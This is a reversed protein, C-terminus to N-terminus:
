EMWGIGNGDDIEMETETKTKTEPQSCIDQSHVCALASEDVEALRPKRPTVALAMALPAHSVPPRNRIPIM